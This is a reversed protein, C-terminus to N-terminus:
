YDNTIHRQLQTEENTHYLQLDMPWSDEDDRSATNHM